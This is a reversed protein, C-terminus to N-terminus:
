GLFTYVTSVPLLKQENNRIVKALLLLSINAFIFKFYGDKFGSHFEGLDAGHFNFGGQM